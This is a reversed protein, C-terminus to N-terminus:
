GNRLRHIDLGISNYVDQSTETFRVRHTGAVILIGAQKTIDRLEPLAEPPVSYEPFVIIDAGRNQSWRAIACLKDTIYKVYSARFEILLSEISEIRRLQGITQTIDLLPAPEEILDSEGDFYAPNYWIQCLHIRVM